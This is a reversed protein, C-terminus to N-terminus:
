GRSLVKMWLGPGVFARRVKQAKLLSSLPTGPDAAFVAQEARKMPDKLLDFAWRIREAIDPYRSPPYAKVRSLYAERIEEDGANRSVALIEWPDNSDSRIRDQM